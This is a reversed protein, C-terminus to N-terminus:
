ACKAQSQVQNDQSTKTDRKRKMAWVADLIKTGKPVEEIPM